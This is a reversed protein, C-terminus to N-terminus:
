QLRIESSRRVETAPFAVPLVAGDSRRRLRYGDIDTDVVEFGSAWAQDFRRRVEVTSGLEIVDLSITITDDSREPGPEEDM